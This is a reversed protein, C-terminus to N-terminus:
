KNTLKSVQEELFEIKEQQKMDGIAGIAAIGATAVYAAIKGVKKWPINALKELMKGRRREYYLNHDERIDITSM